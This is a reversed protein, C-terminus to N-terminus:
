IESWDMAVGYWSFCSCDHGYCVTDEKSTSRFASQRGLGSMRTVVHVDCLTGVWQEAIVDLLSDHGGTNEYSSNTARGASNVIVKHPYKDVAYRKLGESDTMVFWAVSRPSLGRAKELKEACRFFARAKNLVSHHPLRDPEEGIHRDGTRIQLLFRGGRPLAPDPAIIRAAEKQLLSTTLETPEFLTNFLERFADRYPIAQVMVDLRASKWEPPVLCGRPKYIRGNSWFCHLFGHSARAVTLRHKKLSALLKLGKREDQFPFQQIGPLRLLKPPVHRNTEDRTVIFDFRPRYYRTLEPWELLFTANAAVAAAFHTVIGTFRDAIGGDFRQSGPVWAGERVVAILARDLSAIPPRQSHLTNEAWHPVDATFDGRANVAPTLVGIILGISGAVCTVWCQKRMM